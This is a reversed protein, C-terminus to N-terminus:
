HSAAVVTTADTVASALSALPATRVRVGRLKAALLPGILGPHESDSTVIEDGPGLDMGALVKGLGESTSTTLAVDEAACGLVEAYAARLAAQGERRADFHALWRGDALEAALADSAAEAAAVPLPGDTGANLYASSACVPFSARLAAVDLLRRLSAGASPGSARDPGSM